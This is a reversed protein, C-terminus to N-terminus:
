ICHQEWDKILNKCPKMLKKKVSLYGIDSSLQPYEKQLSTIIEKSVKCVLSDHEKAEVGFIGIEGHSKKHQKTLRQSQNKKTM